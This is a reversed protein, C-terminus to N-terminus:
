DLMAKRRRAQELSARLDIWFQRFDNRASEPLRGIDDRIFSMTKSSNYFSLHQLARAVQQPTGQALEIRTVALDDRLWALSQRLWKARDRKSLTGGDKSQRLALTAAAVAGNSRTYNLWEDYVSPHSLYEQFIEASLATRPNLKAHFPL